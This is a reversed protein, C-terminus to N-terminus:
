RTEDPCHKSSLRGQLSEIKNDVIGIFENPYQFAGQKKWYEYGRILVPYTVLNITVGGDIMKKWMKNPILQNQYLWFEEAYLDFYTRAWKKVAPPRKSFPMCPDISIGDPMTSYWEYYRLNMANYNEWQKHENAQKLQLWVFLLGILSLIFGGASILNTFNEKWNFKM